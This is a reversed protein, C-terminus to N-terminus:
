WQESIERELEEIIRQRLEPTDLAGLSHGNKMLDIAMRAGHRNSRKYRSRKEYGELEKVAAWIQSPQLGDGQCCEWQQRTKRLNFPIYPNSTHTIIWDALKTWSELGRSQFAHFMPWVLSVSGRYRSFGREEAIAMGRILAAAEAEPLTSVKQSWCDPYATMLCWYYRRVQELCKLIHEDNELHAEGLAVLAELTGTDVPWDRLKDIAYEISTRTFNEDGFREQILERLKKSQSEPWESVAGQFAELDFPIQASRFQAYLDLKM